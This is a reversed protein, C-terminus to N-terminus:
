RAKASAQNSLPGSGVTNVAAVEYYYATGRRTGTDACSSTTCSFTDYLCGRGLATSRYLRYSNVPSGGNSAPASRSLM